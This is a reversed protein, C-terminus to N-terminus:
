VGFRARTQNFNEKIEDLSLRRDYFYFAGMRGFLYDQISGTGQFGRALILSNDENYTDNGHSGSIVQTDNIYLAVSDSEASIKIVVTVFYWKNPVFVATPSNYTRTLSQGNTTLRAFGLSTSRLSYGDSSFSGSQKGFIGSTGNANNTLSDFYVWSQLTIYSTTKASFLTESDDVVVVSDNTGDFVIAGGNEETFTPGNTLIGNYNQSALNAWTNGIGSYSGAVSADLELILADRNIRNKPSDFVGVRLLNM